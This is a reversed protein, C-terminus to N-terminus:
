KVYNGVTYRKIIGYVGFGENLANNEVIIQLTVYKKVKTNFPVVRPADNSSFELRNFDIDEWNWIDMTSYKVFRALCEKDSRVLVRVSSRMYPKIMVGSGKKVLTKRTMFDGDDDAKTAWQAVIPKGDDHYQYIGNIDTNFRCVRGDGCGFWLDGDHEMLSVAPINDWHYCRYSYDSSFQRTNEKTSNGDLIYAKGNVALVYYGNWEVACANKLDPEKTLQADIFYSRGRLTREATIVNSTIAYVGTRSLFLPEDKLVAFAYPSVAGVGAVGQQLPFVASASSHGSSSSTNNMQASRLFITSDQQNEEKVVALFEGLRHYGMIATEEGGVKSYNLDPVYSPDNLGSFWDTNRREPNGSFFIRDNSGYGYGVSLTCKQIRDSYGQYEKSFTIVLNDRGTVPPAPPATKFTVTGKTLDVTYDTGAKKAADNCIVSDVSKLGTASLQYVTASTTLFSNKQKVGLLNINEYPTGGGTPSRAIVVTPVYAIESVNKCRLKKASLDTIKDEDAPPIDDQNAPKNTNESDSFLGYVIYERGTLLWFKENMIFGSGKGNHLGSRILTPTCGPPLGQTGENGVSPAPAYPRWAYLKTGGHAFFYLDSGIRGHWLGNVPGDLTFMTRWGPRKEPNGGNDSILNPCWPSFGEGIQSPDASMDVGKLKIYKTTQRPPAKAQLAAAKM